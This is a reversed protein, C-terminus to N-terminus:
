DGRERERPEAAGGDVGDDDDDDDSDSLALRPIRRAGSHTPSRRRRGVVNTPRLPASPATRPPANAQLQQELDRARERASRHYLDQLWGRGRIRHQSLRGRVEAQMLPPLDEREANQLEEQLEVDLVLWDRITQLLGELLERHLALQNEERRAGARATMATVVDGSREAAEARERYQMIELETRRVRTQAQVIEAIGSEVNEPTNAASALARQHAIQEHIDSPRGPQPLQPVPLGGDAPDPANAGLSTSGSVQTQLKDCIEKLMPQRCEPCNRGSLSRMSKLLCGKHFVHGNVCAQTTKMETSFTWPNATSDSGLSEMCISCIASESCGLDNMGAGTRAPPGRIPKFGIALGHLSGCVSSVAPRSFM